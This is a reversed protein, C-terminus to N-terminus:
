GHEDVSNTGLNRSTVRYYASPQHLRVFPYSCNWHRRSTANMSSFSPRTPTPLRTDVFAMGMAGAGIVLYDAETDTM